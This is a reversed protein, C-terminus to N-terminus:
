PGVPGPHGLSVATTPVAPQAPGSDSQSAYAFAGAGILAAVFVAVLTLWRRKMNRFGKRMESGKKRNDIRVLDSGLRPDSRAPWYVPFRSLFPRALWV